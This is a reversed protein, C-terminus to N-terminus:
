RNVRIGETWEPPPPTKGTRLMKRWAEDTLRDAIPHKFEYYSLVPGAALVVNGAPLKYAAVLYDVYGSAEELCQRTNSETHVDAILTTKLGEEEVDGVTGKLREPFSGLFRNDEETLPQNAVQRKCIGYLKELLDVLSSLRREAPGSLVDLDKLGRHAMRTTTLIRRYFEPVPEVLGKPPPPTPEPHSISTTAFTPTYSQKGYLITNHRLAAWSALASNLQRDLWAPSRQYGQYGEGRERNLARLSYLWSWYLNRNWDRETLASFEKRLKKIQSDYQPYEDDGMERIHSAARESGLVSFVDLGRPFGRISYVGEPIREDEVYVVSFRKGIKGAITGAAPSVLQSMMYSDPIYRQGMFRLGMTAIQIDDLQEASVSDHGGVDEPDVGAGGTGSFIRPPRMRILADKLSELKREQKLEDEGLETGFVSRMAERYDYITLDDAFGAYFATVSYIRDWVRTVQRGDPLDLNSSYGSILVAQLTQIRATQPDTLAKTGEESIFPGFEADGKMLFTMRGYWMMARFYRKLKESRTYHGRPKYQTYDEPVRFLAHERAIEFRTFKSHSEIHKNEWEVVDEVYGPVSVDMGLQTAAVCFYAVNRRAAEEPDGDLERYDQKSRELMVRTLEAMDQYFVEEEIERLTEDFQIHFLHLPTDATVYIPVGEKLFLDYPETIDDVPGGDVMAFGNDRILDKWSKKGADPSDEKLRVRGGPGGGSSFLGELDKMNSIKSLDLPLSYGPMDLNYDGTAPQYYKLFLSDSDIDSKVPSIDMSEESGKCSSLQMQLAIVSCFILMTIFVRKKM